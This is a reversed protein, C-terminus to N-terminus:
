TIPQEPDHQASRGSFFFRKIGAGLAVFVAVLPKWIKALLGSKLLAAGAGGVVLATLGYQALKDTGPVYEAYTNGARFRYGELLADVRPVAAPLTEESAVLTVTMVGRRGLLKVIRNVTRRGESEGIIAWSLNNTRADYHPAEQWGLISLTSWGRERREENAVETGQQISALMADADLSDKEEDSVYGVDDFEFVLFWQEDGSVPAVTAMERGSVPNQNLEMFRQTEGADLFAYDEGLDIEALGSGVPATGSGLTWQLPAPEGQQAAATAGLLLAGLVMCGVVSRKVLLQAM